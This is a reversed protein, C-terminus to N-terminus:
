WLSTLEYWVSAVFLLANLPTFTTTTRMITATAPRIPWTQERTVSNKLCATPTKHATHTRVAESRPVAVTLDAGTVSPGEAGGGGM